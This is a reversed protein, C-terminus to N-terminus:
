ICFLIGDKIQLENHCDSCIASGNMIDVGYLLEKIKQEDEEYLDSEHIDCGDIRASSVVDFLHCLHASNINLSSPNIAGCPIEVKNAHKISITPMKNSKCKVCRLFATVCLRM